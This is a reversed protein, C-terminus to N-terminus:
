AKGHGERRGSIAACARSIRCPVAAIARACIVIRRCPFRGLYKESMSQVYATFGRAAAAAVFGHAFPSLNAYKCFAHIIGSGLGHRAACHVCDDGSSFFIQLRTIVKLPRLEHELISVYACAELM